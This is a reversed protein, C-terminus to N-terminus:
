GTKVSVILINKKIPDDRAEHGPHVPRAAASVPAMSVPWVHAFAEVTRPTVTMRAHRIERM